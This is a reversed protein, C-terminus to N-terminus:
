DDGGYGFGGGRMSDSRRPAAPNPKNNGRGREQREQRDGQRKASDQAMVAEIQMDVLYAAM